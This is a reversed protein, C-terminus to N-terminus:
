LAKVDHDEPYLGNIDDLLAQLARDQNRIYDDHNFPPFGDSGGFFIDGDKDRCRVAAKKKVWIRGTPSFYSPENSLFEVEIWYTLHRGGKKKGLSALEDDIAQLLKDSPSVADEMENEAQGKVFETLVELGTKSLSKVGTKVLDSINHLLIITKEADKFFAQYDEPFADSNSIALGVVRPMYCLRFPPTEPAPDGDKVLGSPDVFNVPGNGCYRYLNADGASFGIPDKGIFRGVAADYWRARYYYLGIDADFQRGTYSFTPVYGGPTQDLIEGFATYQLHNVVNTTGSDYHVVDRITGEQDALMWYVSGPTSLSTVDEEALVQDVAPGNLYRTQLDSAAMASDDDRAFKLVLDQGDYVYAEEHDIVTDGDDDVTKGVLRDFEDYTYNVAKQVTASEWATELSERHLFTM